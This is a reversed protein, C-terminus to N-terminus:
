ESSLTMTPSDLDPESLVYLYTPKVTVKVTYMSGRDLSEKNFLKRPNIKNEATCDMRILNRYNGSADTDYVDYTSILKYFSSTKPVFGM